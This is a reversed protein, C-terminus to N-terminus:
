EVWINTGYFIEKVGHDCDELYSGERKSCHIETGDVMVRYKKILESEDRPVPKCGLTMVIAMLILLLVLYRM